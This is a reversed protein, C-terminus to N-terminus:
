DLKLRRQRDGTHIVRSEFCIKLAFGDQDVIVTCVAVGLWSVVSVFMTFVVVTVALAAAVPLRTRRVSRRPTDTM